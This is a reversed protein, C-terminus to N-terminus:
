PVRPHLGLLQFPLPIGQVEVIIEITNSWTKDLRFACGNRQLMHKERDPLNKWIAALGRSVIYYLNCCASGDIYQEANVPSWQHEGHRCVECPLRQLTRFLSDEPANAM